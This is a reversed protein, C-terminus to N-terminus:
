RRRRRRWQGAWRRGRCPGRGDDLRIHGGAFDRLRGANTRIRRVFLRLLPPAPRGGGVLQLARAGVLEGRCLLPCDDEDRRGVFRDRRTACQRRRHDIPYQQLQVAGARRGAVVDQHRQRLRRGDLSRRCHRGFTPLPTTILDPRLAFDSQAQLGGIRLPRTWPLGGNIVDGARYTTLNDQDSYEFTSNLRIADSAQGPGSNVIGSQEFTGYPSFARADVNLSAGPRLLDHIYLVDETTGLLDYNVLAGWGTQARLKPGGGSLDFIQGRRKANDVTIRITQTPEDYVYRLGPIDDLMVIDEPFRRQGIDLGVDELENRTAGIRKGAFLVFSGIMNTPVGNIIVELQLNKQDQGTEAAGGRAVMVLIIMFCLTIFVRRTIM